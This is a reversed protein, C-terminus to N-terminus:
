IGVLHRELDVLDITLQCMRCNFMGIHCDEVAIGLEAALWAYAEPRSMRPPHKGMYGKWLQDFVDHAKKKWERLEANALRGLPTTTGRHVGVYAKCPRCLWMKGYSRGYIESSDVLVPAGGCYPCKRGARVDPDIEITQVWDAEHAPANPRLGSIGSGTEPSSNFATSRGSDEAAVGLDDVVKKKM